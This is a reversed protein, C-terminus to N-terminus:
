IAYFGNILNPDTYWKASSKVLVKIMETGIKLKKMDYGVFDLNERGAAAVVVVGGLWIELSDGELM